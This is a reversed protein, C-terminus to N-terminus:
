FGLLVQKLVNSRKGSLSFRVRSRKCGLCSDYWDGVCDRSIRIRDVVFFVVLFCFVVMFCCFVFVVFVVFYGAGGRNTWLFGCFCSKKPKQNKKNKRRAIERHPLKDAHRRTM